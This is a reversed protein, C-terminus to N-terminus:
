NAGVFLQTIINNSKAKKIAEDLAAIMIEYDKHSAAVNDVIVNSLEEISACINGVFQRNEEM